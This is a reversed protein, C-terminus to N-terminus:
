LLTQADVTQAQGSSACDYIARLCAFNFLAQENVIASSPQNHLYRYFYVLPKEGFRLTDPAPSPFAITRSESAGDRDYIHTLAARGRSLPWSWSM